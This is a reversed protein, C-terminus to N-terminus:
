AVALVRKQLFGPHSHDMAESIRSMVTDPSKITGIVLDNEAQKESIRPAVTRHPIWACKKRWTGSDGVEAGCRRRTDQARVHAHFLREARYLLPFGAEESALGGFTASNKSNVSNTGSGGVKRRILGFLAALKSVSHDLEKSTSITKPASCLLMLM